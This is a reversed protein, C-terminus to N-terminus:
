RRMTRKNKFRATRQSRCKYASRKMRRRSKGGTLRKEETYKYPSPPNQYVYYSNIYYSSNKDMDKITIDYDRGGLKFTLIRNFEEPGSDKEILEVRENILIGMFEPIFKSEPESRIQSIKVVPFGFYTKLDDELLDDLKIIDSSDKNRALEDALMKVFRNREEKVTRSLEAEKFNRDDVKRPSEKSLIPNAMTRQISGIKENFYNGIRGMPTNLNRKPLNSTDYFPNSAGEPLNLDLKPLNSTDVSAVKIGFKDAITKYLAPPNPAEAASNLANEFDKLKTKDIIITSMDKLLNNINYEGKISSPASASPASASPASASDAVIPESVSKNVSDGTSSLSSSTSKIDGTSSLSSSTSKIDGTSSLSISISKPDEVFYSGGDYAHDKDTIPVMCVFLGKNNLKPRGNEGFAPRWIQIGNNKYYAIKHDFDESASNIHIWGVTSDYPSPASM